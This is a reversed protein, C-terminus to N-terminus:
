LGPTTIGRVANAEKLKNIMAKYEPTKIREEFAEDANKREAKWRTIFHDIHAQREAPTKRPQETKIM